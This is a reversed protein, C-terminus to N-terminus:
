LRSIFAALCASRGHKSSHGVREARRLSREGVLRWMRVKGAKDLFRSIKVISIDHAKLSDANIRGSSVGSKVDQLTQAGAAQLAPMMYALNVKSLWATLETSAAAASADAANSPNSTAVGTSPIFRLQTSFFFLFTMLPSIHVVSVGQGLPSFVFFFVSLLATHHPDFYCAPLNILIQGVCASLFM